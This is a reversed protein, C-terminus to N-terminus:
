GLTPIQHYNHFVRPGTSGGKLEAIKAEFAKFTENREIVDEGAYPDAGVKDTDPRLWMRTIKGGKEEYLVVLHETRPERVGLNGDQPTGQVATVLSEHLEYDLVYSAKYGGSADYFFRKNCTGKLKAGSERFVCTYRQTFMRRDKIISSGSKLEVIHIREDFHGLFRELKAKVLPLRKEPPINNTISENYAEMQGNALMVANPGMSEVGGEPSKPPSGPPTDRRRRQPEERQPEPVDRREGRERHERAGRGAAPEPEQRRREQPAAPAPPAATPAGGGGEGGRARQLLQVLRKRLEQNEAKLTANEVELLAVRAELSVEHEVGEAEAEEEEEEAEEEESESAAATPPPAKKSRAAREPAKETAKERAKAPRQRGKL